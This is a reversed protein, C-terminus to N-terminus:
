DLNDNLKKHLKQIDINEKMAELEADNTNIGVKKQIEHLMVLIKTIENEARVNVEFEVQQRVKEIRGQRNQSILVSVSLIIAFVSVVMELAPFPFHDFPKIGPLFSLNCCIWCVFFIICCCLFTISGFTNAIFIAMRDATTRNLELNSKIQQNQRKTIIKATSKEAVNKTKSM